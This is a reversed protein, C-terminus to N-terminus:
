LFCLACPCPQSRGATGPLLGDRSRSGSFPPSCFPASAFSSLCRCLCIDKKKHLATLVSIETLFSFHRGCPPGGVALGACRTATPFSSCRRSRARVKIFNIALSITCAFLFGGSRPPGLGSGLPLPDPKSTLLLLILARHAKSYFSFARRLRYSAQSSSTSSPPNSGGFRFAVSKCDAGKPWEPVGGYLITSSTSPNSGGVQQNCILQEVM